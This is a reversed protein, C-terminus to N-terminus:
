KESRKSSELYRLVSVSFWITFGLTVWWGSKQDEALKCWERGSRQILSQLSIAPQDPRFVPQLKLSVRHGVRRELHRDRFGMTLKM